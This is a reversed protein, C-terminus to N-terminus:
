EDEKDTNTKAVRVPRGAPTGEYTCHPCNMPNAWPSTRNCVPCQAYEDWEVQRTPM